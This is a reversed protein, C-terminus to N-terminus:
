LLSSWGFSPNKIMSVIVKSPNSVSTTCMIIEISVTHHAIFEKSTIRTVGQGVEQVYNVAKYLYRDFHKHFYEDSYNLTCYRKIANIYEALTSIPATNIPGHNSYRLHFILNLQTPVLSPTLYM